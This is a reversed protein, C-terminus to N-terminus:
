HKPPWGSPRLTSLKGNKVTKALRNDDMRNVIIEGRNNETEQNGM